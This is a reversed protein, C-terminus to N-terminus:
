CISKADDRDYREIRKDYIENGDGCYGIQNNEIENYLASLYSSLSYECADPIKINLIEVIDKKIQKFETKSKIKYGGQNFQYKFEFVM